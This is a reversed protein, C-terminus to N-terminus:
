FGLKLRSWRRLTGVGLHLHYIIARGTLDVSMTKTDGPSSIALKKGQETPSESEGVALIFRWQLEGAVAGVEEGNDLHNM